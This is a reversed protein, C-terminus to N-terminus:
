NIRLKLDQLVNMYHVYADHPRDYPNFYAHVDGDSFWKTCMYYFHDSTTLKRWDEILREDETAKVDDELKYIAQLATEQMQNSRWASIDREIDAWSVIDPVDIKGTPQYREVAESTTVFDTDPHATLADPLARMFDFIGTDKWQHEGFTEYDMFLNVLQGSGHHEHVWRAYKDATLPWGEWDENSFRFAIDDSLRYHKLLVTVDSATSARYPFMPSRWGLIRDAGETLIAHFGMENVVRAIDNNYILETNRFVRPTVGFVREIKRRHLNVQDKFEQESFLVALSHHYTEALLEVRGTGVLRQFSEIVEPAHTQFQELATGSISFTIKFDPHEELLELLLRNMPLYNKRAVKKLVFANDLATGSHDSFYERDEGIDFISYRKVRFPQHVQFYFCVSQM